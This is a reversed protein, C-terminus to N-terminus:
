RLTRASGKELGLTTPLQERHAKQNQMPPAIETRSSYAPDSEFFSITM